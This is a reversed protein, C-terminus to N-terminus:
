IAIGLLNAAHEMGSVFALEFQFGSSAALRKGRSQISEASMSLFIRRQDLDAKFGVVKNDIVSNVENAM